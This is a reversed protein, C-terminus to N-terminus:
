ISRCTFSEFLKKCIPANIIKIPYKMWSEPSVAKTKAFSSILEHDDSTYPPSLYLLKPSEHEEYCIWNSAVTVLKNPVGQIDDKFQVVLYDIETSM